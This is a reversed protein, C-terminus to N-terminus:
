HTECYYDCDARQMACLESVQPTSFRGVCDQWALACRTLCTEQTGAYVSSAGLGLAFLFLSIKLKM